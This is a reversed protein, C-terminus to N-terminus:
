FSLETRRIPSLNSITKEINQPNPHQRWDFKDAAGSASAIARRLVQSGFKSAIAIKGRGIPQEVFLYDLRKEFAERCDDLSANAWKVGEPLFSIAANALDFRLPVLHLHAHDVGCGVPRGPGCPGHEFACIDSYATELQTVVHNRFEVLELALDAPLAGMSIFHQRPVVLVWGDVISGLSPVALFNASEFLPQDWLTLPRAVAACLGCARDNTQLDPVNLM